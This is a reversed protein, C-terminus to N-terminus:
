SRGASIMEKLTMGPPKTIGKRLEKIRTIAAAVSSEQPRTTEEADNRSGRNRLRSLAHEIVEDASRFQGEALQAAIFRESESSMQIEM